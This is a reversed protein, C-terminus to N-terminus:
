LGTLALAYALLSFIIIGVGMLTAYAAGIIADMDTDSDRM